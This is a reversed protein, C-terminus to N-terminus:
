NYRITGTADPVGNNYPIMERDGRLVDLVTCGTLSFLLMLLLIGTKFIRKM